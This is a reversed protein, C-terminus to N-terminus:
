LKEMMIVPAYIIQDKFDAIYGMFTTGMDKTLKFYSDSMGHTDNFNLPVREPNETSQRAVGKSKRAAPTQM